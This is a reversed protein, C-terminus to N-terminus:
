DNYLKGKAKLLTIKAVLAEYLASYYQTEVEKLTASASLLEYNSHLGQEYKAKAVRYVKNALVLNEQQTRMSEIYNSLANKAQIEEQRLRETLFSQDNKYQLYALRKQQSRSAKGFGEFIPIRLSTGITAYSFWEDNIISSFDPRGTTYGMSANLYLSPMRRAQEVKIEVAAIQTVASLQQYLPHLTLDAQSESLLYEIDEVNLTDSLRIQHTIPLGMHLNLLRYSFSLQHQINAHERELLKLNIRLRDVDIEEIFGNKYLLQTEKLLTQVREINQALLADQKQTILVLYYTRHISEVLDARSQLEDKAAIKRLLKVSRLGLFYTRDFLLQRIRLDASASHETGFAAPLVSFTRSEEPVLDESELVNYIAPSLFDPFITRRIAPNYNYSLEGNISPMGYSVIERIRAETSARALGKNQLNINHALAYEVSEKLSFSTPQAISLNTWCCLGLMFKGFIKMKRLVIVKQRYIKCVKLFFIFMEFFQRKRAIYHYARIQPSIM